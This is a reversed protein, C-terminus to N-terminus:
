EGNEILMKLITNQSKELDALGDKEVGDRGCIQHRKGEFFIWGTLTSISSQNYVKTKKYHEGNVQKELSSM